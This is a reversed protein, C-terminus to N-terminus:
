PSPNSTDPGPHNCAYNSAAHREEIRRTFPESAIYWSRVPSGVQLVASGCPSAPPNDTPHIQPPRRGPTPPKPQTHLPAHPHYSFHPAIIERKPAARPADRVKKHKTDCKPIAARPATAKSFLTGRQTIPHSHPNSTHLQLTPPLFEKPGTISFPKSPKAARPPRPIPISQLAAFV